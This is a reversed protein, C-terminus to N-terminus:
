KWGRGRASRVPSSPDACLSPQRPPFDAAETLGAEWKQSLLRPPWPVRLPREIFFEIRCAICLGPGNQLRKTEPAKLARSERRGVFRHRRGLSARADTGNRPSADQSGSFCPLFRAPWAWLASPRSSSFSASRSTCDRLGRVTRATSRPYRPRKSPARVTGSQLPRPNARAPKSFTRYARRLAFPSRPIPVRVGFKCVKECM